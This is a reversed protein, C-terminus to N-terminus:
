CFTVTENNKKTAKFIDGKVLFIKDFYSSIKMGRKDIFFWKNNIRVGARGSRFPTSDGYMVEISITNQERNIFGYLKTANDVILSLEGKSDIVTYNDPNYDTVGLLNEFLSKIEPLEIDGSVIYEWIKNLSPMYRIRELLKTFKHTDGNRVETPKILIDGHNYLSPLATLFTLTMIILAMPYDDVRIGYDSQERAPHSFHQTGIEGTPRDALSNHYFSDWYVIVLRKDETILINDFKIDGHIIDTSLLQIFLELVKFKLNILSMTDNISCLQAIEESLTKGEIWKYTLLTHPPAENYYSSISLEDRLLKYDPTFPLNLSSLLEYRSFQTESPSTFLKVAYECNDKEGKLVVARNSSYRYLSGDANLKFKIGNITAFDAGGIEIIDLYKKVRNM